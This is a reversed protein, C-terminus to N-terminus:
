ERVFRYSQSADGANIQVFYVGTMFGGVNISVLSTGLGDDTTAEYVLAGTINYVRAKEIAKQGSIHLTNSAPNPYVRFPVLRHEENELSQKYCDSFDTKSLNAMPTITRDYTIKNIIPTYTTTSTINNPGKFTEYHMIKQNDIVHGLGGAHATEHRAVANFDYETASTASSYYSWSLNENFVYDMEYIYYYFGSYVGNTSVYEYGLRTRVVAGLNNSLIGFCISNINDDADKATTTDSSLKLNIGSNCVLLDFASKFAAKAAANNAVDTHFKFLYAGNADFNSETPSANHDSGVHHVRYETEKNGNAFFDARNKGTYAYSVTLGSHQAISNAATEVEVTGTGAKYPVEVEIQSDTWSVIQTGLADINTTGGTDANPFRV